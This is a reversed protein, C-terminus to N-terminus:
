QGHYYGHAHAHANDCAYARANACTHTGTNAGPDTRSPHPANPGAYACSRASGGDSRTDSNTGPCPAPPTMAPAQTPVATPATMVSGAGAAGVPPQQPQPQQGTPRAPQVQMVMPSSTTRESSLSLLFLQCGICVAASLPNWTNCM